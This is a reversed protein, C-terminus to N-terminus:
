PARTLGYVCWHVSVSCLLIRRPVREWGENSAPPSKVGGLTEALGISRRIPSDREMPPQRVFVGTIINHKDTVVILMSVSSQFNLGSEGKLVLHLESM